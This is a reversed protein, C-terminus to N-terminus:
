GVEQYVFTVAVILSILPTILSDYNGIVLWGGELGFSFMVPAYKRSKPKAKSAMGLM